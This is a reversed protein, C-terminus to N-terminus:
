IECKKGSVPFAGRAHNIIRSRGAKFPDFLTPRLRRLAVVQGRRVVFSQEYMCLLQM